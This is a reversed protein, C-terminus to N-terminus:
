FIIYLQITGNRAGLAESGGSSSHGYPKMTYKSCRNTTCSLTHPSMFVFQM